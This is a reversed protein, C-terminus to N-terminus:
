AGGSGRKGRETGSGLPVLAGALVLGVNGGSSWGLLNPKSIGLADALMLVAEAQVAM